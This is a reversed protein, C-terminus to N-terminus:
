FNVSFASMLKMVDRGDMEELDEMVIPKDDIKTTISILAFVLDESKGDSIKTAEKIHKGKFIGIVATKGSPLIITQIEQEKSIPSNESLAPTSALKQALEVGTQESDKTISM